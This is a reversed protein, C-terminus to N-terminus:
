EYRLAILPDVKTARLAPILCAVLAVVILLLAIAAFTTRDTPSVGFLLNVMSRTLAFSAGLGLAVGTLALTMGQRTVLWLVDSVRAGLAMRVGIEHTRQAVSYSMVGYLGIGALILAVAAFIGLLIVNFRQSVISNSVVQELTRIGYLPQDRDISRFVNRVAAVSKLPDDNTRVVITSFGPTSQGQPFFMESRTERALGQNRVDGAIGVITWFSDTGFVIRKGLPDEDPFFRRALEENIIMVQPQGTVDQETFDRGRMFQIGMTRFYDPSIININANYGQGPPQPPRGEIGFYRSGIGGAVPLGAVMGVSRVGPLAAINRRVEEFFSVRSQGERYKAGSLSVSVALVNEPNFGLDVRSLRIFSKIMLGAGILLVLSLAVESVVFIGRLRNRRLSGSTGRSSEKLSENLDPKSIQLAPALGFIVGTIITIGFTFALVVYDLRIEQARPIDDPNITLLLEVGLLGLVLGLFGGTFSLLLSETFLQRVVRRRSAGLATRIAIEKRRAAGRALLLNAVNACAILLVFGVAALIVLLARRVDGVTEEYLSFVNSGHGVNVQYQKELAAAISAMDARAQELTVGPKLRALLNLYHGGRNARENTNPAYPIWMEVNSDPFSFGAPMVGVVAYNTGSLTLTKGLIAQDRGFRRDWSGHSLIVVLNKGNIEEEQTFARGLIPQQRLLPFLDPSVSTVRVRDPEGSGTLTFDGATYAAMHEFSKNQSRWDFFDSPSVVNRARGLHHRTEWVKVLREPEEFPLPRLLVGNVITFIASNAGIGLALTIVAILTFVPNKLLMRVGYRLDQVLTRMIGGNHNALGEFTPINNDCGRLLLQNDYWGNLNFGLLQQVGCQLHGAIPKMWRSM